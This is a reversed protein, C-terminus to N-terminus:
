VISTSGESKKESNLEFLSLEVGRHYIELDEKHFDHIMKEWRPELIVTDILHYRSSLAMLADRKSVDLSMEILVHRSECAAQFTVHDYSHGDPYRAVSLDFKDGNEDPSTSLLRYGRQLLTQRRVDNPEMCYVDSLQSLQETLAEDIVGLELITHPNLPRILGIIAQIRVREYPSSRHGDVDRYRERIWPQYEHERLVNWYLIEVSDRSFHSFTEIPSVEQHPVVLTPACERWYITGTIYKKLAFQEATLHAIQAPWHNSSHFSINPFVQSVAYSIDQRHKYDHPEGYPNHTYVEEYGMQTYPELDSRLREIDLHDQNPTSCFLTDVKRIGLLGAASHLRQLGHNSDPLDTDPTVCLLDATGNLFVSSFWFAEDGPQAVVVLRTEAM